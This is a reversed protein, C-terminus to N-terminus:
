KAGKKKAVQNRLYVPMAQEAPVTEGAALQARALTAVDGAHVMAEPFVASDAIGQLGGAQERCPGAGSGALAFPLHPDPVRVEAAPSVHEEGLLRVRGASEEFLAWYLEGMRADFTALVRSQAHERAVGQALAALSSVPLLPLDAALALGQAVAVAIRVGTFSGPGRAFGIGDLDQLRIGAEALLGGTMPLILRSHQRPAVEFSEVLHDDLLLAASCAQETTDIALIKMGRNYGRAFGAM